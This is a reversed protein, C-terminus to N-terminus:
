TFTHIQSFLLLGCFVCTEAIPIPIQSVPGQVSYRHNWTPCPKRAFNPWHRVRSTSFPFYIFACIDIQFDLLSVVSGVLTLSNSFLM